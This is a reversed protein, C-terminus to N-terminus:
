KKKYLEMYISTSTNQSYHNCVEKYASESIKNRLEQDSILRLLASSLQLPDMPPVLLGTEGDSVLEPIGGVRSAVVVCRAAMAELISLPLGESLSPMAFIDFGQLLCDIDERFGLLKFSDELGFEKIKEELSSQEAGRGAVVFKVNKFTSLINKASLILTSHGKVPYLNGVAGILIEDENIQLEDRIKKRTSPDSKYKEIDVGNPIVVIDNINLGIDKALFKKINESVAVFKSLKSLFKYLVRRQLRDPYYNKGHITGVAPIRCLLSLIAAHCNMAFEHSHLAMYNGRKILLLVRLLWSPSFFADLPIVFCNIGLSTLRHRLWGDRILLVESCISKSKLALIHNILMNEAGGPGSTEIMHLVKANM